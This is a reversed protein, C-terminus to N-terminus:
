DSYEDNNLLTTASLVAYVVGAFSLLISGVSGLRRATNDSGHKLYGWAYALRFVFIGFGIIGAETPYFLSAILVFTIISAINELFNYHVRQANNFTHWDAYSLKAAYRGNGMDPYGSESIPAHVEKFHEDGFNKEM